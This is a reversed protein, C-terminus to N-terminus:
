MINVINQLYETCLVCCLCHVITNLCFLQSGFCRFIRTFRASYGMHPAESDWEDLYIDYERESNTIGEASLIECEIFSTFEGHKTKDFLHWAGRDAKAVEAM